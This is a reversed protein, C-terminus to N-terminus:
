DHHTRSREALADDCGPITSQLCIHLAAAYGLNDAWDGDRAVFLTSELPRYWFDHDACRDWDSQREYIRRDCLVRRPVVILTLPPLALDGKALGRDALFAVFSGAAQAYAAAIEHDKDAEVSLIHVPPDTVTRDVAYTLGAILKPAPFTVEPAAKAPAPAPAALAAQTSPQADDNGLVLVAMVACVVAAALIGAWLVSRNRPAPQPLAQAASPMTDAMSIPSAPPRSKEAALVEDLVAGLVAVDGPRDAPKKALCLLLARELKAPLEVGKESPPPPPDTLQKSMIEFHTEGDFPTDGCVAEYLTMGLAYIDTRADVERGRVQEPAMYRVTGMTQGTATLRSSSAAVKAIGFDMVTAAGDSARVLINSPKMDRHVIGRRHAYDLASVVDRVVTCAVQWRLKGAELIMREFTQGEVLQMALVFCGSEEGFNYLHVINPHDLHALARAEEVFRSKVQSHAALEPPLVKLAVKQGTVRHRGAYVVSMGGQGLVDIIEYDGLVVSGIM